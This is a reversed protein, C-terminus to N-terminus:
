VLEALSVGKIQAIVKMGTQLQLAQASRRTIRAMFRLNSEGDLALHVMVEAPNLVQVQSIRVPLFNLISSQQPQERALSVDRAGIRLRVAAGLGLNPGPCWITQGSVKVGVMGDDEVQEIVGSWVAASDESQSFPLQPDVLADSLPTASLVRGQRLAVLHDALREVESLDHSVLIIPLALHNALREFYPLIDEKAHKDLASLPEDMLLLEPQSLLARGIAVRQREGGSLHTSHRKIFPGLGLLDIVEQLLIVPKKHKVRQLGFCLNEQVSLHPFLSAEQFVYGVPRKHPPIFRRQEQWVQEGIVIRGPIKELGAIARLISTKGCGSPGFLATVGHMPVQFNVDLQFQGLMGQLQVDILESAPGPWAHAPYGGRDATLGLQAM